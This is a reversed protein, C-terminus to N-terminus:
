VYATAGDVFRVPHYCRCVANGPLNTGYFTAQLNEDDDLRM